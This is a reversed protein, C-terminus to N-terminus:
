IASIHICKDCARSIEELYPRIGGYGLPNGGHAPVEDSQSTVVFCSEPSRRRKVQPSM